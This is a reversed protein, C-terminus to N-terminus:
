STAAKRRTDEWSPARRLTLHIPLLHQSASPHGFVVPPLTPGHVPLHEHTRRTRRTQAEVVAEEVGAEVPAGDLNAVM